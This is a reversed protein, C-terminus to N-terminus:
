LCEFIAVSLHSFSHCLSARSSRHRPLNVYPLLIFVFVFPKHIENICISPLLVTLWIILCSWRRYIWRPARGEVDNCGRWYESLKPLLHQWIYVLDLRNNLYKMSSSIIIDMYKGLGWFFNEWLWIILSYFFNKFVFKWKCKKKNKYTCTIVLKNTCM